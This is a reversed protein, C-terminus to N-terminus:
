YFLCHSHESLWPNPYDSNPYDLNCQVILMVVFVVWTKIKFLECQNIHLQSTKPFSGVCTINRLVNIICACVNGSTEQINELVRGEAIFEM